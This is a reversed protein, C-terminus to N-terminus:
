AWFNPTITGFQLPRGKAGTAARATTARAGGHQNPNGGNAQQHGTPKLGPARERGPGPADLSKTRGVREPARATEGSPRTRPTPTPVGPGGVRGGRGRGRGRDGGPVGGVGEDRSAVDGM